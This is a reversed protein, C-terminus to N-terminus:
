VEHIEPVDPEPVPIAIVICDYHDYTNKRFLICAAGTLEWSNTQADYQLQLECAGNNQPNVQRVCVGSNLIPALGIMM